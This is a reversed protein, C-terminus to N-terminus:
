GLYFCMKIRVFMFSHQQITRRMWAESELTHSVLTHNHLMRRQSYNRMDNMRIPRGEDPKHYLFIGYPEHLFQCSM